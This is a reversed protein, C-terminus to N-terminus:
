PESVTAPAAAAGVDAGIGVVLVVMPGVVVIAARRRRRRM